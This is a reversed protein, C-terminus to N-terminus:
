PQAFPAVPVRDELLVVSPAVVKTELCHALVRERDFTVVGSRGVLSGLETFLCLSRWRIPFPPVLQVHSFPDKRRAIRRIM